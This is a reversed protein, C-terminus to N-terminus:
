YIIKMILQANKVNQYVKVHKVIQHVNFVNQNM